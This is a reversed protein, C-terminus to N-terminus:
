KKEEANPPLEGVTVPRAVGIQEEYEGSLKALITGNATKEYSFSDSITQYNFALSKDMEERLKTKAKKAAQELTIPVRVIKYEKATDIIFCIGLYHNEGIKLNHITQSNEFNQYPIKAPLSLSIKKGLLKMHCFKKQEGTYVKKEEYLNFEGVKEHWTHVYIEGESHVYRVPIDPTESVLIGSILIDGPFVTDGEQLKCNGVKVNKRSVIGMKLAVINCPKDAPVMAPVKVKEKVEVIAKNGKIDVWVWAL